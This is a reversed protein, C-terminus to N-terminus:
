NNIENYNTAARELLVFCEPINSEDETNFVIDFVWDIPNSVHNTLDAESQAVYEEFGIDELLRSFMADCSQQLSAVSARTELIKAKQTDTLKM